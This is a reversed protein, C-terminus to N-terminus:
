SKRRDQDEIRKDLYIPMRQQQPRSKGGFATIGARMESYYTADINDILHQLGRGAALSADTDAACRFGWGCSCSVASILGTDTRTVYLSHNM